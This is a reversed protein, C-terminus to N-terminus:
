ARIAFGRGAVPQGMHLYPCGIEEGPPLFQRTARVRTRDYVARDPGLVCGYGERLPTWLEKRLTPRLCGRFVPLRRRRFEQADLERRIQWSLRVFDSGSTKVEPLPFLFYTLSPPKGARKGKTRQRRLESM